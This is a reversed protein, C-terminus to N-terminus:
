IHAWSKRNVVNHIVVDSVGYEAALRAKSTPRSEWRSRIEKVLSPTLKARGNAVGKLYGGRGKAARDQANIAPTGLFLHDPNTCAPSDCDHCVIMGEPIPGKNILYSLRHARVRVGRDKLVGYGGDKVGRWSWCGQQKGSMLWFRAVANLKRFEIAPVSDYKVAKKFQIAM